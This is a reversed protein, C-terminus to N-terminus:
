KGAFMKERVFQEVKECAKTATSRLQEVQETVKQRDQESLDPSALNSYVTWAAAEGASKAILAAGILDTWLYKSCSPCLAVLDRLCATTTALIESPVSLAAALVAQKKSAAEPDNPDAKASQRWLDYAAIDEAILGALLKRGRELRDLVHQVQEVGSGQKKARKLAFGAVMHGLSAGVAGVLAATSGGGPTPSDAALNDLFTKVPLPVYDRIAEDSM